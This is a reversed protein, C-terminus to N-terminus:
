RVIRMESVEVERRRVLEEEDKWSRLILIDLFKIKIRKSKM